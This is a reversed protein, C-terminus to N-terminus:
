RVEATFRFTREPMNQTWERRYELRITQRGPKAARFRWTETGGGSRKSAYAPKADSVLVTSAPSVVAWAFGNARNSELMVTVVQGQRVQIERGDDEATLTLSGVSPRPTTEAKKETAGGLRGVGAKRVEPKSSTETGSKESQAPQKQQCGAAAPIVIALAALVRCMRHM